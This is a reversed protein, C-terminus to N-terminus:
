AVNLGNIAMNLNKMNKKSYGIVLFLHDIFNMVSEINIGFLIIEVANGQMKVKFFYNWM